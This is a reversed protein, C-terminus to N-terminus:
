PVRGLMADRRAKFETGASWEPFAARQSVRFGVQFLLQADEVAGSLDWDAKVEDDVGHYDGNTYESRKTLGYSSDKGVYRTGSDTFLAPVGQKAFEFQDSRYFFGKETEPDPELVRGQTVAAAALADDLTSNGRGVVVIDETRGWQNIGDVNVNAVTKVLPYLPNEAYYKAGLLGQEEATVALFLISRDPRRSLKTFAEAIEIVTAMGSANDIAGNYIQDGALSADRGM